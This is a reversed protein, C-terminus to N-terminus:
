FFKKNIDIKKAIDSYLNEVSRFDSPTNPLTFVYKENNFIIKDHPGETVLFGCNKLKKRRQSLTKEGIAEKLKKMIEQGRGTPKNSELLNQLIEAARSDSQIKKKALGLINLILDKSEDEYFDELTFKLAVTVENKFKQKLNELQANKKDLQNQLESVREKLTKNEQDFSELYHDLEKSSKEATNKQEMLKRKQYALYVGDWTWDAMNTHTLAVRQVAQFIDRIVARPKVKKNSDYEKPDIIERYCTGPFYIGAYGHYANNYKAPACLQLAFDKNPETLVHAMGSLNIALKKPDVIYQGPNFNDYSLYVIPMHLIPEGTMIRACLDVDEKSNKLMIPADLVPIIGNKETMDKEFLLKILHPKNTEPLRAVYGKAECSVRISLKKHAESFVCDTRWINNSEKNIFRCAFLKDGEVEVSLIHLSTTDSTKQFCEEEGQKLEIDRINYHPSNMLWEKVLLYIDASKISTKLQITTTFVDM